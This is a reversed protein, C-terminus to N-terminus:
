AVCWERCGENGTKRLIQAFPVVAERVGDLAECVERVGLSAGLAVDGSRGEPGWPIKGQHFLGKLRESVKNGLDRPGGAGSRCRGDSRRYRM